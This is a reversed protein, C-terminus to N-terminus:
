NKVADKVDEETLGNLRQAVKACRDLAAASKKGLAAADAETFICVGNEDIACAAVLRARINSVDVGDGKKKPVLSQEWADRQLGTMSGIRVSGGWEPVPVDEFKLDAAALIAERNLM